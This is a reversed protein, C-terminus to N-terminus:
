RHTRCKRHHDGTIAPRRNLLGLQQTTNFQQCDCGYCASSNSSTAQYGDLTTGPAQNYPKKHMDIHQLEKFLEESTCSAFGDADSWVASQGPKGVFRPWVGYRAFSLLMIIKTSTFGIDGIVASARSCIAHAAAHRATASMHRWECSACLPQFMTSHCLKKIQVIQFASGVTQQVHASECTRDGATCCALQFTNTDWKCSRHLLDLMQQSPRMINQLLHAM